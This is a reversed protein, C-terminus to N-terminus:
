AAGPAKALLEALAADVGALGNEEGLERAPARAVLVIDHGPPLSDAHRQCAERLLRKVLNREVAGGVKRGVSLGIRPKTDPEERPFTYLVLYRNAVSRGHRYVRDFEASRSLRGTRRRAAGGHQPEGV